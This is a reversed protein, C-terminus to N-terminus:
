YKYGEVDFIAINDELDADTNEWGKDSNDIVFYYVGPPINNLRWTYFDKVYFSKHYASYTGGGKFDEFNAETMLLLEIGYDGDWTKLNFNILLDNSYDALTIPGTYKYNQEHLLQDYSSFLLNSPSPTYELQFWFNDCGFLFLVVFVISLILFVNQM